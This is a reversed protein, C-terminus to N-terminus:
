LLQHVQFVIKVHSHNDRSLKGMLSIQCKEVNFDSILACQILPHLIEQILVLIKHPVWKLAEIKKRSTKLTLPRQDILIFIQDSQHFCFTRSSVLMIKWEPDSCIMLSYVMIKKIKLKFLCFVHGFKRTLLNLEILIHLKCTSVTKV